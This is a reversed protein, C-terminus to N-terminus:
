NGKRSRLRSLSINTIGLYSAIYSHPILNELMPYDERFQELRDSATLAALGIEKDVKKLLENQLVTHAFTLIESNGLRLENFVVTNISAVTLPTLAQLNLISHGARVRSINPAVVTDSTYFSLTTEEGPPNLLFSRCVGSLVFYEKYNPAGSRFILDNKQFEQVELQEEIKSQSTRSIPYVDQIIASLLHEMIFSVLSNATNCSLLCFRNYVQNYDQKETQWQILGNRIM